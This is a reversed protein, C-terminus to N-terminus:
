GSDVMQSLYIENYGTAYSSREGQMSAVLTDGVVSDWTYPPTRDFAGSWIMLCVNNQTALYNILEYYKIKEGLQNAPTCAIIDNGLLGYEGIIVGVGKSMFSDNLVNFLQEVHTRPTDNPKDATFYEDFGTIGINTSYLWDSYFHVTAIINPDNLSSIFNYTKTASDTDANTVYTPIVIMRTANNGGSNRIIDYGAQNIMDLMDQASITATPYDFVPENITEFCVTNPEDKFLDALQIWLDVYKKYEESSKDGNWKRLWYSDHHLNIMVYLGAEVAWDVTKKYTALFTPDIVYHGDAGLTVRTEVTFPMRISDYGKAKLALILDQTVVPPTGWTMDFTNFLNWGTGMAKVYDLSSLVPPVTSPNPAPTPFLTPVATPSPAPGSIITNFTILDRTGEYFRYFCRYKRCTKPWGDNRGMFGLLILPVLISFMYERILITKITVQERKM